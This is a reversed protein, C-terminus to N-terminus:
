AFTTLGANSFVNPRRGCEEQVNLEGKFLAVGDEDELDAM